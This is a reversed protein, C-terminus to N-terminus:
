ASTPWHQNSAVARREVMAKIQQLGAQMGTKLEEDHIVQGGIHAALM